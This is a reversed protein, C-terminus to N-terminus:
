ESRRNSLVVVAPHDQDVLDYSGVTVSRIQGPYYGGQSIAVPIDGHRDLELLLVRLLETIRM